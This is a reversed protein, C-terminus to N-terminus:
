EKWFKRLFDVAEQPTAVRRVLRGLTAKVEPTAAMLQYLPDWYDGLFLLPKQPMLKKAIFEWALGLEALTGTAGPLAIFADAREFMTRIRDWLDRACYTEDTFRNPVRSFTEVTVGIVRGGAEKAGRASAEM